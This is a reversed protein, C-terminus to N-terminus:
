NKATAGPAQGKLERFRQKDSEYRARINDAGAKKQVIEADLATVAKHKLQVEEILDPPLPKQKAALADAQKKLEFLEGNVKELRTEATKLAQLPMELTRDRAADIDAETTYTAMLARDRREGTALEPKKLDEKPKVVPGTKEGPKRVVVGHRNMETGKSCDEKPSDSYYVKGADDVCKYMRSGSQKQQAFAPMALSIALVAGLALRVAKM